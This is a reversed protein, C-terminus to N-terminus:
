YINIEDLLFINKALQKFFCKVAIIQIGKISACYYGSIFCILLVSSVFQINVM